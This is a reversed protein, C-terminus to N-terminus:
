SAMPRGCMSNQIWLAKSAVEAWVWVKGIGLCKPVQTYDRATSMEETAEMRGGPVVPAVPATAAPAAPATASSTETPKPASPAGGKGRGKGITPTAVPPPAAGRSAFFFASNQPGENKKIAGNPSVICRTIM